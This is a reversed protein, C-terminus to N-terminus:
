RYHLILQCIQPPPSRQLIVKFVSLTLFAEKRDTYVGDMEEVKNRELMLIFQKVTRVSYSPGSEADTCVGSRKLFANNPTKNM